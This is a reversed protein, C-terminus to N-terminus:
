IFGFDNSNLCFGRKKKERKKKKKRRKKVLPAFFLSTEVQRMNVHTSQRQAAEAPGSGCESCPKGAGKELSQWIQNRWQLPM